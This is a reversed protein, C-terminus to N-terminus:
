RFAPGGRGPGSEVAAAPGGGPSDVRGDEAQEAAGPECTDPRIPSLRPLAKWHSPTQQRHHTQPDAALCTPPGLKQAHSRSSRLLRVSPPADPGPGAKKFRGPSPGVSLLLSWLLAEAPSRPGLLLATCSPSHSSRTPGRGVATAIDGCGSQFVSPKRQWVCM